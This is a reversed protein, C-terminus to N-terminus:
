AKWDMALAVLLRVGVGTAGEPRYYPVDPVDFATGAIDLHAWPVEGVFNQLFFSATIAGARYAASGTNSLDAVACKIAPKYDDDMPLRWVRDGSIQSATNIRTVFDDHQSFLGSFFPGLAYACAGTLTAMDIIADLKYHKVAYSLADALILRGEADTNKVEATKGNYFTIIDGPKIANGSPLNEALPTFAIINVAPKLQAIAQMTSIVAAAGSMDDKMTEMSNAPKLSLGGSDFTIGKGVFGITPADKVTTKYELISFHCDLESGRSVGCLGGMGMKCLEEEEFLTFKLGYKDAIERAKEALEPPTLHSPPMDVWHRAQNVAAAIITGQDLAAKAEDEALGSGTITIAMNDSAHAQKDSVFDNFKYAAMYAIIATERLLQEASIGNGEYLAVDIDLALSVSKLAQAERVGRALARRYTEIELKKLDGLGVFIYHVVRNDQYAPVTLSTKVKGTFDAKKFIAQVHPIHTQVNTLLAAHGSEKADCGQGLFVLISDVKQELTPTKSISLTIM